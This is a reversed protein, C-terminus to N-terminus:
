SSRVFDPVVAEGPSLTARYSDEDPFEDNGVYMVYGLPWELRRAMAGLGVNRWWMDPPLNSTFFVRRSTFQLSGGKTEVIFPYRDILRQCFDRPLWGYFEDIVVDRQGQYGDWWAGGSRPKPLWFAGRGSVCEHIGGGDDARVGGEASEHDGSGSISPVDCGGTLELVHSSKGSGSPGWYVIAETHFSRLPTTLRIYREVARYHKCWLSFHNTAIWSETKGADVAEQLALLDSRVGQGVPCNGVEWPGEVRTDVKKCYSIAKSIDRVYEVHASSGINRKASAFRIPSNFIVTGQYHPVGNKGKELQYVLFKVRGGVVLEGYPESPNNITFFWNRYKADKNVGKPHLFDEREREVM